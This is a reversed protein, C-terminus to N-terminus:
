NDACTLSRGNLLTKDARAAALRRPNRTVHFLRYTRDWRTSPGHARIEVRGLRELARRDSDRGIVAFSPAATPLHAALDNAGYRCSAGRNLYYLRVALDHPVPGFPTAYPLRDWEPVNYLLVVPEDPRVAQAARQYFAWEAGRGDIKPGLLVFGAACALGLAGFGALVGGRLVQPAVGRRQLREGLRTLGLAAWVSWPPLAHIAYHGNKVTALSLLAVPAVAWAWLLRDAGYRAGPRCARALTRVAGGLALPTWPMTQLVLAPLYAWWPSRGAFHAPRAALRDAVHLTWLGLARPHRVVVLAPWAFALVLAASAGVGWALRRCTRRDRDWALVVSASAAVLAAGFGIGKVLASLGLLGFLAARWARRSRDDDDDTRLRDLAVFAWTVLCALLVDPEALRGRLVLWVTTAQILGSLLGVGPGFRRAAFVAVGLAVPAGAVASPLRAAAETVGGAAAGALAVLWFGLPPKELWPRGGITPVLWDRGAALERAAQATFAEHYTLRGCRGLGAGLTVAALGLVALARGWGLGRRGDDM